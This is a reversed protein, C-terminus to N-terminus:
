ARTRHALWGFLFAENAPRTEALQIYRAGQLSDIARLLVSEGATGRQRMYHALAGLTQAGIVRDVAIDAYDLTGRNLANLARQLFGTAVSTGMNVGIDFMEAAVSPALLAIDDFKPKLWYIRRYIEVAFGRPLARMAGHYGHQRAVAQTIGWRTEGGRDAPHNSYGGERSIVANILTDPDHGTESGASNDRRSKTKLPPLDEFM